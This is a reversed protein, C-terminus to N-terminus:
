AELMETRFPEMPDAPVLLHNLSFRYVPGQEVEAPTIPFAFGTILGRWEPIPYHLGFHSFTKAIAHSTEQDGVTVSFLLGVEHGIGHKRPELKGMVADRGYVRVTITYDDEGVAGGFLEQVRPKFREQMNALWDDLQRLIYPERVGAIVLTQYGLLEAGELKYTVRDSPLFESGSVRVRRDDLAEYRSGTTDLTGGPEVLLFPDANEYLTHSAISQPTCRSEMDLPEIVFDDRGITAMICDPHKRHTAAAAGCELIKAAHWALGEPFGVHTPISAFIATDSSRGALVVDAGGELAAVYPEAGMMGVIRTAREITDEDFEPAPNLPKIRGARLKDKLVEKDQEAHILATRFRLGEERAIEQLLEFVIQLHPDGGATGCTGILLPVEAERAGLLMLRLDRKMARPPISTTGAGLPSPGPDTSGADSGIFHPKRRLGEKFSSELFGSGLVGTPALARIADGNIKNVVGGGSADCADNQFSAARGVL